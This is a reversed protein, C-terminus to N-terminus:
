ATVASQHLLHFLIFTMTLVIHFFHIKAATVFPIVIIMLAM